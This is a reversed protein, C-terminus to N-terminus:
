SRHELIFVSTTLGCNNCGDSLLAILPNQLSRRQDNSYGCHVAVATTVSPMLGLGYAQLRTDHWALWVTRPDFPVPRDDCMCWQSSGVRVLNMVVVRHVAAVIWRGRIEAAVRALALIRRM